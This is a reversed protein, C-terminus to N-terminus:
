FTVLAQIGMVDISFFYAVAFGLILYPAFPIESKMTLHKLKKNLRAIVLLLISVAAGIWFALVIASV